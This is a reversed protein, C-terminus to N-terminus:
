YKGTLEHYTKTAYNVKLNFHINHFISTVVKNNHKTRLSPISSANGYVYILPSNKRTRGCMGTGTCTNKRNQSMHFKRITRVEFYMIITYNTSRLVHKDHRKERRENRQTKVYQRLLRLGCSPLLCSALLAAQDCQDNIAAHQKQQQMM